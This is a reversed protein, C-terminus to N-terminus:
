MQESSVESLSVRLKQVQKRNPVVIQAASLMTIVALIGVM